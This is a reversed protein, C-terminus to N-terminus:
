CLTCGGPIQNSVGRLASVEQQNASRVYVIVTFVGWNGAPTFTVSSGTGFQTRTGNARVVEWRYTYHGLGGTVNAFWTHPTASTVRSPGDVQVSMSGSHSNLLRNPSGSGIGILVNKITGNVIASAVTAPTATPRGQLFLAAVGAVHPSAASTGSFSMTGADSAFSVSTSGDGPAFLDICSGFNSNSVKTDNTPFINGVALVAGLRGPSRSCADTSQNGGSVVVQVGRNIAGGAALDLAQSGPGSISMNIVAPKIHNTTVWNFAAVIDDTSGTNGCFGIVRLAILTTQKAVGHTSGGIIGAVPTGHGSCDQGGRGDEPVFDVALSARGGFQVHTRRIGSDIIYVRVGAGSRSPSYIYAGDLPRFLQDIRDLNAPAGFQAIHEDAIMLQVPEILAIRPNRRLGELAQSPFAASFGKLASTYIHRIRGGHARELARALGVPDTETAKFVVIYRGGVGQGAALEADIQRSPESPERDCAALLLVGSCVCTVAARLVRM